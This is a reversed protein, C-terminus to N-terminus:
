GNAPPEARSLGLPKSDDDGCIIGDRISEMLRQKLKLCLDLKACEVHTDVAVCGSNGYLRHEIVKSSKEPCDKCDPLGMYPVRDIEMPEYSMKETEM